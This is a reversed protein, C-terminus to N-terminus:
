MEGKFIVITSAAIILIGGLFTATPPVEHFILYAFLVGFVLESLLIISASAAHFYEFGKTMLLWAMFNGIGFLITVIWTNFSIQFIGGHLYFNPELFISLLGVSLMGFFTNIVMLYSARYTHLKKRAILYTATAIASLLAFFSGTRWTGVSTPQFLLVLAIFSLILSISNYRNLKDKLIFFGLVPTIIAYLYMIFLATSVLTNLISITYFVTTLGYGVIAAYLLLIIHKKPIYFKAKAVFIFYVLASIFAFIYRLAVQSIPPIGHYGLFRILVPMFSYILASLLLLLSGKQTKNLNIM